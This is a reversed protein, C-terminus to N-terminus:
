KAEFAGAVQPLQPMDKQAGTLLPASLSDLGPPSSTSSTARDTPHPLVWRFRASHKHRVYDQTPAIIEEKCLKRIVDGAGPGTVILRDALSAQSIAFDRQKKHDAAGAFARVILFGERQHETKLRNFAEKEAASLESVLKKCMGDWATSFDRLHEDLTSRINRENLRYHEEVIRQAAQRGFKKSLHGVLQVLLGHRTGQRAIPYRALIKDVLPKTSISWQTFSYNDTSKQLSLESSNRPLVRKLKGVGSSWGRPLLKLLPKVTEAEILSFTNTKPNWTGPARIAKGVPQSEARENPFIECSGDAIPAGILECLQKLLVIWASLPQLERTIIFLHFGNGSTCLILHVQPNQLLLSFAELSWKRAQEHEGNHADFDLAAWRSQGEPNSPYFGIGTQGKAKGTITGWAWSARRDARHSLPAKTFRAQGKADIWVNLFHSLPNENLMHECLAKFDGESWIVDARKAEGVIYCNNALTPLRATNSLSLM